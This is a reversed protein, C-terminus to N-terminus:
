MKYSGFGVLAVMSGILILSWSSFWVVEKTWMVYNMTVRLLKNYWLYIKLSFVPHPICTTYEVPHPINIDTTYFFSIVNM